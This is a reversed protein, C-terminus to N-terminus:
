KTMATHWHMLWAPMDHLALEESAAGLLVAQRPMGYVVCTAENQAATRAGAKRMELLGRAGDDGMGTLLLGIANAGAALAVSKFLVDVSPKHHNHLPGDRVTVVYQAGSRVMQMHRGGPAILVRGTLVRDGDKAERVEMECLDDLRKSMPGTFAEPMHQVIVIGPHHRPLPRLLTEIAQVGGTSSGVAVVRDTTEIMALASLADVSPAFKSKAITPQSLPRVAAMRAQSAAKVAAILDNSADSLYDKLGLRPKAICAVAGEALAQLTTAAGADTLTSCIVVPTPRERMLQRLFTIGDMRPMEVDLVVVDPWQAQMKPLAFLPDSATFIVDMGASILTDSLHRRVVASDDVVAVKIKRSDM